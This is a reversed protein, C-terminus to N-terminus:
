TLAVSVVFRLYVPLSSGGATFASVCDSRAWYQLPLHLFIVRLLIMVSDVFHFV